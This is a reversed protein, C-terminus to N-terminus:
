LDPWWRKITRLGKDLRTAIEKQTYGNNKMLRAKSKDDSRSDIEDEFKQRLEAIEMSMREQKDKLMEVDRELGSISEYVQRFDKLLSLMQWVNKSNKLSQRNWYGKTIMDKQVPHDDNSSVISSALRGSPRSKELLVSEIDAEHNRASLILAEKAPLNHELIVKYATNAITWTLHQEKDGKTRNQQRVIKKWRNLAINLSVPDKCVRTLTSLIQDIEDFSEKSIRKM